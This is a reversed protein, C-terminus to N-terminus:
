CLSEKTIAYKIASLGLLACKQRTYVVEFGLLGYVDKEGIKEIEEKGKGSVADTILSVAAQSIACGTGQHGIDLVTGGKDFKIQVTIDDGCLPNYERHEVDFDTMIKKNLPYRYLDLIFDRYMSDVEAKELTDNM